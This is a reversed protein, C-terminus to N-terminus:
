ARQEWYPLVLYGQKTLVKRPFSDLGTAEEYDVERKSLFAEGAGRNESVGERHTLRVQDGATGAGKNVITRAGALRSERAGEAAEQAAQRLSYVEYENM